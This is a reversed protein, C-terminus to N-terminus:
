QQLSNLFRVTESVDEDESDSGLEDRDIGEGDDSEEGEAGSVEEANDSGILLTFGERHELNRIGIPLEGLPNNSLDLHELSDLGEIIAPVTQLRNNSLTLVSLRGLMGIAEPLSELRNNDLALIELSELEEIEKPLSSLQNGVLELWKLSIFGRIVSPFATFQNDQLELIELGTLVEIECALDTLQLNSLNLETITQFAFRNGLFSMCNKIDVVNTFPCHRRMEEPVQAWTVEISRNQDNCRRAGEQVEAYDVNLFTSKIHIPGYAHQVNLALRKFFTFYTPTLTHNYNSSEIQQMREALRIPGEPANRKLGNWRYELNDVFVINWLRCVNRSSLLHSEKTVYGLIQSCTEFPILYFPNQSNNAITM